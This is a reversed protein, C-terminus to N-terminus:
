RILFAAAQSWGDYNYLRRRFDDLSTWNLDKIALRSSEVAFGKPIQIQCVLVISTQGGHDTVFGGRFKSRAEIEQFALSHELNLDISVVSVAAGLVGHYTQEFLSRDNHTLPSTFGVTRGRSVEQRGDLYRGRTYSLIERERRVYSFHWIPIGYEGPRGSRDYAIDNKKVIRAFDAPLFCDWEDRPVHYGAPLYAAYERNLQRARRKAIIPRRYEDPLSDDDIFKSLFYRGPYPRFFISSERYRLIDESIRATLTKHQTRGHLHRPVLNMFYARQIIERSSLPTRSAELVEEALTLYADGAM